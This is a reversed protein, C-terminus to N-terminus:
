ERFTLTRASLLRASERARTSARDLATGTTTATTTMATAESNSDPSTQPSELIDNPVEGERHIVEYLLFGYRDLGFMVNVAMREHNRNPLIRVQLACVM